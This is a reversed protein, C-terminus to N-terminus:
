LNSSVRVSTGAPQLADTPAAQRQGPEQEKVREEYLPAPQLCRPLDEPAEAIVVREM